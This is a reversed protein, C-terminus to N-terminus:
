TCYFRKALRVQCAWLALGVVGPVVLGGWGIGALCVQIFLLSLLWRGVAAQVRGPEPRGALRHGILGAGVAMPAGLAFAFIWTELGARRAAWGVAGLGAVLVLAPLWRRFGLDTARTESRAIVTVAAVYLGLLAAAVIVLASREGRWGAAVAGTLLSLARCAGMFLPGLIRFRKMAGNYLLVTATLAAATGMGARGNFGSLAIGAAATLVCLLIATRPRVGGSPIPRDPRERRDEAQDFLDNGILGHAYILLAAGVAVGARGWAPMVGGWPACGADLAATSFGSASALLFGAAPDGPVTLLNPPRLLAWGAHRAPAAHNAGSM